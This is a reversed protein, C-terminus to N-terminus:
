CGRTSTARRSSGRPAVPPPRPARTRAPPRRSRPDLRGTQRSGRPARRPPGRCRIILEKEIAMGTSWAGTASGPTASRRTPREIRWPGPQPLRRQLPGPLGHTRPHLGVRRAPPGRRGRGPVPAGGRRCWPELSALFSSTTSNSSPTWRSPRPSVLPAAPGRRLLRDEPVADFRYVGALDTPRSGIAPRRRVRPLLHVALGDAPDGNARRVIGDVDGDGAPHRHRQRLEDGSPTRPGRAQLPRGRGRPLPPRARHRLRPVRGDPPRAGRLDGRRSGGGRHPDRGRRAGPDRAVARSPAYRPPASGDALRGQGAITGVGDFVRTYGGDGGSPRVEVSGLTRPGPAPDELPGGPVDEPSEPGASRGEPATAADAPPTEGRSSLAMWGILALAALVAIWLLAAGREPAAILGEGRWRGVTGQRVADEKRRTM